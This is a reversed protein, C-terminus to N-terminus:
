KNKDSYYFTHVVKGNERCAQAFNEDDANGYLSPETFLVDFTLSAANALSFYRVIDGYAERPWPWNWGKEQLAWDISEQDLLVLSIADSPHTFSATLRMAYDYLLFDLRTTLPIFFSLISLSFVLISIFLSRLFVPAKKKRKMNM